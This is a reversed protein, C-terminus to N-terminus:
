TRMAKAFLRYFNNTTLEAMEDTSMDRLEALKAATHCVFSPENSKGRMPVPALYPSDTEVLLRDLPVERAVDRVGEAAKFTLIGSFSVYLGLDLATKALAGGSSFCHLLGSFFGKGMEESLIEAMDDDADRTHIILPLGTQRAAAIHTRFALKQIEHPAHEYYYDLGTEGIGIVKTSGAEKILTEVTVDGEEEAQHPHVGVTCWINENSEAIAKVEPFTTMRTSITVMHTVGAEEARGLIAPFDQQLADFDLHCHSDILM